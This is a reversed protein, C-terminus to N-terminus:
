DNDEAAEVTEATEVGDSVEEGDAAEAAKEFDSVYGPEAYFPKHSAAIKQGMPSNKPMIGLPATVYPKAIKGLQDFVIKRADDPINDIDLILFYSKLEPNESSEMGLIIAAHVNDLLEFQNRFKDLMEEPYDGTDKVNMNVKREQGAGNAAPAGTGTNPTPLNIGKAKAFVPTPIMLNMGKPDVVIGRAEPNKKLLLAAYNDFTVVVPQTDPDNKWKLVELWETFAPFFHNGKNDKVLMFKAKTEYKEGSSLDIDDPIEDMIVPAIFKSEKLVNFMKEENLPTKNEKWDAVAQKLEPNKITPKKLKAM